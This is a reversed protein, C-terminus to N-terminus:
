VISSDRIFQYKRIFKEITQLSHSILIKKKSNVKDFLITNNNSFVIDFNQQENYKDINKWCIDDIIEDKKCNNIITINHGKKSLANSLNILVTEAGRLNKSYLDRSNYKFKTKELFCIEM